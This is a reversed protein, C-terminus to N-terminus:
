RKSKPSPRFEPGLQLVADLTVGAACALTNMVFHAGVDAIEDIPDPFFVAFQRPFNPDKAWCFRSLLCCQARCKQCLPVLVGANELRATITGIPSM